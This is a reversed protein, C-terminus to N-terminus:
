TAKILVQSDGVKKPLIPPSETDEAGRNIKPTSKLVQERGHGANLFLDYELYEGKKFPSYPPNRAGVMDNRPVCHRLLRWTSTSVFCFAAAQYTKALFATVFCDGRARQCLVFPQRKTHRQSSRLSSAIEVHENTHFLLSSIALGEMSPRLLSVFLFGEM